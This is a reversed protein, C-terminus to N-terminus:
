KLSQKFKELDKIERNISNLGPNQTCEAVPPPALGPVGLLYPLMDESFVWGSFDLGMAEPYELGNSRAYLTEGARLIVTRNLALVPTSRQKEERCLAFLWYNGPGPGTPNHVYVGLMWDIPVGAHTDIAAARVLWVEGPPVIPGIVFQAGQAGWTISNFNKIRPDSTPTFAAGAMLSIPSLASAAAIFLILIISKM